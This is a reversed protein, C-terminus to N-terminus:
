CGLQVSNIAVDGGVVTTKGTARGSNQINRTKAGECVHVSDITASGTTGASRNLLSVGGAVGGAFVTIDGKRTTTNEIDGTKAGNDVRVSRATVDGTAYVELNGQHTPSNTITGTTAGKAVSINDLTVKAGGVSGNVGGVGVSGNAQFAYITNNGTNNPSNFVDGQITAQAFCSQSLSLVLSSVATAFLTNEL